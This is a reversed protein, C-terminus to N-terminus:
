KIRGWTTSIRGWTIEWWVEWTMAQISKEYSTSLDSVAKKFDEESMTFWEIRWTDEDRNAASNLLSASKQLIALEKESLAGFTWWAAKIDILNQLTQGDLIFQVKALYQQKKNTFSDWPSFQYWGSVDEALYENEESSLFNAVEKDEKLWKIIPDNETLSVTNNAIYSSVEDKLEPNWSIDSLKAKGRLINQGWDTATQSFEVEPTTAKQNALENYFNPSEKQLQASMLTALQNEDLDKFFAEKDIWAKEMLEVAYNHNAETDQTWVWTALRNYIKDSWAETLAIKYADLWDQVSEFKIYNGWEATPRESWLTYSVWADDFLWKLNSSIGWTMWTPNNNKFSAEWQYQNILDTNTSWDLTTYDTEDTTWTVDIPNWKGTASDYQVWNPSKATWINKTEPAKTVWGKLGTDYTKIVEWTESNILQQQGTAQDTIISTSVWKNAQEYIRQEQTKLIDFAMGRQERDLVDQRSQRDLEYGYEKDAMTSQYNINSQLNGIEYSMSKIQENVAKNQRAALMTARNISIWPNEKIIADLRADREDVLVKLDTNKQNLAKVDTTLDPYNASMYEQFTSTDKNSDAFTSLIKDSLTQLFNKEETETVDNGNAKNYANLITTSENNISDTVIKQNYKEKAAAIYPNNVLDQELKSNIEGNVYANYLQDETMSVYKSAIDYRAKATSYQKTTKIGTDAITQGAMLQAFINDANEGWVKTKIPNGAEDINWQYKVWGIDATLVGNVNEAVTNYKSEIMDELTTINSGQKKWEEITQPAVVEATDTVTEIKPPEVKTETIKDTVVPPTETKVEVPEIVPTVDVWTEVPPTDTKVETVPPIVDQVPVSTDKIAQQDQATRIKDAFSQKEETTMWESQELIAARQEDTLPTVM